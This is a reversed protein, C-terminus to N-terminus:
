PKRPLRVKATQRSIAVLTGESDWFEGDEEVVGRSIHRSWLRAQLPGPAPRARVQVTLEVTPVWGVLGLVDLAPPPFADAFMLLSLPDPDAGDIHALWGQFEGGGGPKGTAFVEGGRSLRVAVRQAFELGGDGGACDEWAPFQPRPAASWSPGDLQDLRTYAATVLVKLEGDQYLRASAQSTNGGARLVEVECDVPGLATPALYFANVTLPDPHPLAEALARGAVALVYGGNPVAGIRWGRQLEGRWRGEATKEVATEREFYGM